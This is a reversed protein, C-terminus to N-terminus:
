ENEDEKTFIARLSVAEIRGHPEACSRSTQDRLPAERTAHERYPRENSFAGRGSGLSGLEPVRSRGRTRVAFRASPWPHLVQPKPLFEDALKAMRSWVLRAKQSRRCLQRYWLVTVHYRFAGIAASNTPVAHYAFYGAVIQGLWNGTEPISGHRRQRLGEKVERLKTRMRDRRSKRRIQFDGRRSKGCILVFGLFTFTGPKGLGRKERNQAAYRGFVILRTKDPHLSLSFERLRDRMADWFRRADAEREFGIVTDDAYRVIIMDGTAERRRWREAWLDFVYHLYVNALLPSIVSGQGTGKEEITVIGDELVGARLWKQVLRIVRKDGIRHELFRVVWKQSVETFFSRIDADLIFNVKRSSIGVILADLADHQSRKPRFGYSFGLFDEEYIASLVASVARQVIKDELAAVALPRKSGDEKPIYSRRSPSARYAGSKVRAHLEEIRRDLDAEYAEWTMGDIGPAADRKLAYFATRLMAPAVHHLLATFREKKKQRAAQRVRELAQSVSVRDQARRTSQQDANGKTGTRPEVPEAVSREAKNTPKGAVVVSDSKEPGHM